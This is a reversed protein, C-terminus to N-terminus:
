KKVKEPKGPDPWIRQIDKVTVIPIVEEVSMILEAAYDHQLDNDKIFKTLDIGKVINGKYLYSSGVHEKWKRIGETSKSWSAYKGVFPIYSDQRYAEGRYPYKSALQNMFKSDTVTKKKSFFWRGIFAQAPNDLDAISSPYEIDGSVLERALVVLERAIKRSNM